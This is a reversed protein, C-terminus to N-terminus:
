SPDKLVNVSRIKDLAARFLHNSVISVTADRSKLQKLIQKAGNIGILVWQNSTALVFDDDTEKFVIDSDVHRKFSHRMLKEVVPKSGEEDLLAAEIVAQNTFDVRVAAAIGAEHMDAVVSNIETILTDAMKQAETLEEDTLVLREAVEIQNKIWDVVLEIPQYVNIAGIAKLAHAHIASEKVEIELRATTPTDPIIRLMAGDPRTTPFSYRVGTGGDFRHWGRPLLLAEIPQLFRDDPENLKLRSGNQKIEQLKM